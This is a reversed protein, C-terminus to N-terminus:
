ALVYRKNLHSNIYRVVNMIYTEKDDGVLNKSIRHQKTVVTEKSISYCKFAIRESDGKKWLRPLEFYTKQTKNPNARFDFLKGMRARFYPVEPKRRRLYQRYASEISYHWDEIHYFKLFGKLAKTYNWETSSLGLEQALREQGRIHNVLAIIMEYHYFYGAKVSPHEIAKALSENDGIDLTIFRGLSRTRKGERETVSKPIVSSSISLHELSLRLENYSSFDLIYPPKGYNKLLYRYTCEEVPIKKVM